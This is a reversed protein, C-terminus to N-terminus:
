RRRKKGLMWRAVGILFGGALSVGLQLAVSDQSTPWRGKGLRCALIWCLFVMVGYPLVGGLLM